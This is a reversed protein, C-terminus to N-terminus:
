CPIRTSETCLPQDPILLSTESGLSGMQALTPISVILLNLLSKILQTGLSPCGFPAQNASLLYSIDGKLHRWGPRLFCLWGGFWQASKCVYTMDICPHLAPNEVTEGRAFDIVGHLPPTSHPHHYCKLDMKCLQLQCCCHCPLSFWAWLTSFHPLSEREGGM